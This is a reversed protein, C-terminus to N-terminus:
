QPGIKDLAAGDRRAVGAVRATGRQEEDLGLDAGDDAADLGAFEIVRGSQRSSRVSFRIRALETHPTRETPM